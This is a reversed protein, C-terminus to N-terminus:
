QLLNWTACHLIGGKVSLEKSPIPIITRGPLNTRILECAAQDAPKGYAPIFVLDKIMVMNIYDSTADDNIKNKHLDNPISICHFKKLAQQLKNWYSKSSILWCDNLFLEGDNILRVMGDAHGTIDGPLAPIIILEDLELLETLEHIIQNKRVPGNDKFVKDTLIAKHQYYCINGGDLVLKSKVMKERPYFDVLKVRIGSPYFNLQNVETKLHRYRPHDYYAPDYAFQVFKEQHVQLPMFDRCWYDNAGRILQIEINRSKCTDMMIQVM